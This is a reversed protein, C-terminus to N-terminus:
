GVAVLVQRWRTQGLWLGGGLALLVAAGAAWLPPWGRQLGVMAGWALAWVLLAPLPWPLRRLWGM